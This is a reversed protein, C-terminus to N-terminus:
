GPGSASVTVRPWGLHRKLFSFTGVGHIEHGGPFFEIETREPIGLKAYLRRVRSYEYAVWEDIGVPDAHGREVMFARPAILAAMEAYGFTPGLNWEPMEYEGVLMYTGPYDVSVNKRIWENFDGSCISLCYRELLAPVRMATKGGYSLGYFAMRDRDVFPLGSLWELTREHQRVIVGFLSQGLPNAKRQAVRFRDGGIYPNQPAYVVFGLDALRAGFANYVSKIGPDVVDQPRGELGHQCVVVPRREGAVLDKPVLLVGYAFVEPWVDLVIEYGSWKPQDYTKRSRPKAPVGAPACVGIVERFRDRYAHTTTEWQQLSSTDAQKWYLKRQEECRPVQGQSFAVLQEFQRRQRLAPDFRERRDVPLPGWPRLSGECGLAAMLRGIVSETGPTQQGNPDTVLLLNKVAGRREYVQRAQEWEARVSDIAPPALQGPAAGRRGTREAPPGSVEPGRGAEVILVRPVILAALEADGFEPLLSWVNRYIPERWLGRRDDFYGSVVAADIRADLAAAHLALLGGEGYGYVGIAPDGDGATASLWDVGALVKQVEYGIIHRGLEYAMRYIFERHPQNTMRLKPNGSWTDARDILVPVLVRCGNEALRRAFQHNPAVGPALGVLMEPTWDADPIAVMHASTDGVPTLLLGEGDVGDFVAWRVADITYRDTVAVRAPTATTAVLEMLVEPRGAKGVANEAASLAGPAGIPGSLRPDVLGILHALRDRRAKIEDVEPNSNAEVPLSPPLRRADALLRLFYQDIGEVMREALDGEMELPATGPLRDPPQEARSPLACCTVLVLLIIRKMM